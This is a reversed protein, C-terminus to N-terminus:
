RSARASQGQRDTPQLEFLADALVFVKVGNQFFDDVLQRVFRRAIGEYSGNVGTRFGVKKDGVDFALMFFPPLFDDFLFPHLEIGVRDVPVVGPDIFEGFHAIRAGDFQRFFGIVPHVLIPNLGLATM